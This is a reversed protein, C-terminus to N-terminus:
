ILQHAYCCLEGQDVRADLQLQISWDAGYDQLIRQKLDGPIDSPDQRPGDCPRVHLLPSAGPDMGLRQSIDAWIPGLGTSYSYVLSEELLFECSPRLHNDAVFPNLERQHQIRDYWHQFHPETQPYKARQMSFESLMRGLPDRIVTFILDFSELKLLRRLLDAHLHQPSCRGVALTLNDPGMEYMARASYRPHAELM